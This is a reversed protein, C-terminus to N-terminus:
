PLLDTGLSPDHPRGWQRRTRNMLQRHRATVASADVEPSTKAGRNKKNEARPVAVEVSERETEVIEVQVFIARFRLAAGTRATVPVSLSQLVMNRYTRISTQVDVPERSDRLERLFAFADESPLTTTDRVAVVPGIPTNSVVGEISISIPQARVNDAVDSGREVPHTTVENDFSHDETLAADITYTGIVIM